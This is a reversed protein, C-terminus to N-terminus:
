RAEREVLTNHRHPARLAPMSVLHIDEMVQAQQANLQERVYGCSCRVTFTERLGNSVM